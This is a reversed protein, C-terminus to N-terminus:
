QKLCNIPVVLVGDKRRYAYGGVASKSKLNPNWAEMDEIQQKATTTKECWKPGQILIM